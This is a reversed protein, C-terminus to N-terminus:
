RFNAVLYKEEVGAGCAMLVDTVNDTDLDTTHPKNDRNDLCWLEKFYCAIVPVIPIMQSDCSLVITRGNNEGKNIIRGCQHGCKFTTHYLTPILPSATAEMMDSYKADEIHEGSTLNRFDFRLDKKPILYSVDYEGDMRVHLDFDERKYGFHFIGELIPLVYDIHYFPKFHHANLNYTGYTSGEVIPMRLIEKDKPLKAYYTYVGNMPYLIYKAMDILKQIDHAM